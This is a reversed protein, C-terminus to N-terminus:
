RIMDWVQFGSHCCEGLKVFRVIMVVKGAAVEFRKRLVQQFSLWSCSTYKALSARQQSILNKRVSLICERGRRLRPDGFVVVMAAASSLRHVCDVFQFSDSFLGSAISGLCCTSLYM